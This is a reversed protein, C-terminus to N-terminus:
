SAQITRAINAITRLILELGLVLILYYLINKYMSLMQWLIQMLDPMTVLKVDIIFIGLLAFPIMKALDKSLDENYYATIRVAAVLAMAALLIESFPRTSILSIFLAIVLFWFFIFLPFLVLYEAIYLIGRFFTSFFGSGAYQRLNLEFIDEKALFRYFKFIFISYIVIGALILILPQLTLVAEDVSFEAGTMNLVNFGTLDM